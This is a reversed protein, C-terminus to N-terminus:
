PQVGAQTPNPPTWGMEVLTDLAMVIVFETFSSRWPCKRVTRDYFEKCVLGGFEVTARRVVSAPDTSM